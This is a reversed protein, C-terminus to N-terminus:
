ARGPVVRRSWPAPLKMASLVLVVAGLALVVDGVSYVNGLPIWAPTAWRDVLWGLHPHTLAVSNNHLRSHIGADSLAQPLAPMHGANAVVTV